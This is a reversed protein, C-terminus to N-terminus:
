LSELIPSIARDYPWMLGLEAEFSTASESERGSYVGIIETKGTTYQMQGKENKNITPSHELIVPSGSMGPRTKGDIFIYPREGTFDPESAISAAKYIPYRNPSSKEDLPFGVVFVRNMPSYRVRDSPFELHMPSMAIAKIQKSIRIAVVDVLHGHKPHSIWTPGAWLELDEYLDIEFTWTMYESSAGPKPPQVKPVQAAVRLRLPIAGTTSIVKRDGHGLGSVVHDNTILLIENKHKLFFGTARSIQEKNAGALCSIRATALSYLQLEKEMDLDPGKCIPEPLDLLRMLTCKFKRSWIPLPPLPFDLSLKLTKNSESICKVM